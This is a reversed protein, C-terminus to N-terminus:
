RGAKAAADQFYKRAEGVLYFSGTIVIIDERSVARGALKIAEELNPAVQCMKSTLDGFRSQLDDPEVARPNARSRTFIVKDAGLAVQKLMGTVDKDQGCAFVLVLSDYTIHAGLSRILAQISAANHAGDVVVRPTDWVQEMRGPLLTADLGAIVKDQPAEFGLSKLRDLMSLALACNHAQHEGRLPVALHEWRSSPTTISLRTHPGLERDAEFRHSFEIDKGTYQLTTGVSEAADDLVKAVEPEQEVSIAPVDRKFIGAKETAISELEEGLINMHDHSIHTMGTIMPTVATTADLRGGLGTELVAIDVAEDAFYRLAAATMVEFFSPRNKGISPEAEAILRFIETLDAHSIMNGDITIRERLDVLHPSSFLGVTYGCSKLMAALMACTSGKGKTGAVQVCRIQEHPNGLADLLRRMRDLSFTRTNYAVVRMREYDTHSLLWKTASAYNTVDPADAVATKGASKRTKSGKGATSKAAKGKKGSGGKKNSASPM